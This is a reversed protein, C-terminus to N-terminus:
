PKKLARLRDVLGQMQYVARLLEKALEIGAAVEDQAVQNYAKSEIHAADNGLLRLEHLADMLAQPVTITQKLQEIRQFLDAGKVNQHHCLEELTKRLMIAAATYCGHAHCTVAEDFAQLVGAPIGDRDFPLKSAPFTQLVRGTMSTVLVTVGICGENVCVRVALVREGQLVLDSDSMIKNGVVVANCHPCLYRLAMGLSIRSSSTNLRLGQM